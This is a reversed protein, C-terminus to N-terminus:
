RNKDVLSRISAAQLLSDNLKSIVDQYENKIRDVGGRRDISHLYNRYAIEDAHSLILADQIVLFAFMTRLTAKRVSDVMNKPISTHKKVVLGAVNAMIFGMSGDFITCSMAAMSVSYADNNVRLDPASLLTMTAQLSNCGDVIFFAKSYVFEKTLAVTDGREGMMADLIKLKMASEQTIREQERLRLKLLRHDLTRLSEIRTQIEHQVQTQLTAEVSETQGLSTVPHLVLLTLFLAAFTTLLKM